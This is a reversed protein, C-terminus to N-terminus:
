SSSQDIHTLSHKSRENESFLVKSCNRCPFPIMHEKIAFEYSYLNGNQPDLWIRKQEILNELITDLSRFEGRVFRNPFLLNPSNNNNGEGGTTIMNSIFQYKEEDNQLKSFRTKDSDSIVENLTKQYKFERINNTSTTSFTSSLDPKRIQRGDEWVVKTRIKPIGTFDSDTINNDNSM